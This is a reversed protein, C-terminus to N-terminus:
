KKKKTTSKKKTAATAAKKEAEAKVKKIHVEKAKEVAEINELNFDVKTWGQEEHNPNVEHDFCHHFQNKKANYLVTYKM